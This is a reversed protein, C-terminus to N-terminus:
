VQAVKNGMALRALDALQLNGDQFKFRFAMKSVRWQANNQQLEFDYTGYVTWVNQGSPNPLFHAATGNCFASARWGELRIIPNSIQHHTAEFGPLFNSWNDIVQEPTTTMPAVGNMSSYDLVFAEQFCDKLADWNRSDTYIFLRHITDLIAQQTEYSPSFM